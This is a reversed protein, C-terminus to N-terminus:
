GGAGPGRRFWNWVSAKLGWSKRPSKEKWAQRTRDREEFRGKLYGMAQDFDEFFGELETVRKGPANAALLSSLAEVCRPGVVVAFPMETHDAPGLLREIDDGWEYAFESLDLVVAAPAFVEVGAEVMAAMYHADGRGRSGDRYSGFFSVWLVHTRWAGFLDDSLFYRHVLHSRGELEVREFKEMWGKPETM